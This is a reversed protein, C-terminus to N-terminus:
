AGDPAMRDGNMVQAGAVRRSTMGLRKQAWGVELGPVGAALEDSTLEHSPHAHGSAVLTIPRDYQDVRHAEMSVEPVPMRLPQCM